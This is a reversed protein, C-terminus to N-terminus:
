PDMRLERVAAAIAELGAALPHPKASKPWVKERINLVTLVVGLVLSAAAVLSLPDM